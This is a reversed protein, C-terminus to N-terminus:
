DFTSHFLEATAMKAEKNALNLTKEGLKVMDFTNLRDTNDNLLAIFVTTIIPLNDIQISDKVIKWM